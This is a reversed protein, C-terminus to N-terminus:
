ENYNSSTKPSCFASSNILVTERHRLNAMAVEWPFRFAQFSESTIRDKDLDIVVKEFITFLYCRIDELEELDKAHDVKDILGILELNYQDARNKQKNQLWMRLQLLSSVLLASVSLLLGIPEAYEVIFSPRGQNYYASAGPHIAMGLNQSSDPLQIMAALSTLKVLENRSEYIIRTIEYITSEDINKDTILLARVAVVPLDNAPIPVAGNYAGKPIQSAELAPLTLQLAAAQDIGILKINTNQLLNTMAANGLATIRFVADVEGKQLALLAAEPTQPIAQFDRAKLGYHQSLSWFLKYSGSGKPMLAIRKGKLDPVTDINSDKTVILHYMEPFLPSVVMMSPELVTDSQVLGLQAKKSAVLEANEQSGATELVKLRLHHSRRELVEALAKAFAYYQGRNSGTAVTLTRIRGKELYWFLGFTAAMIVSLILLPLVFRKSQM